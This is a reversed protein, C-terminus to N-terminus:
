QSLRGLTKMTDESLSLGTALKQRLEVLSETVASSAQVSDRKNNRNIVFM